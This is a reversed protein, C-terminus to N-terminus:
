TSLYIMRCIYSTSAKTQTTSHVCLCSFHFVNISYLSLSTTFQSETERRPTLCTEDALEEMCVSLTFNLWVAHKGLPSSCISKIVCLSVIEIEYCSIQVHILMGCELIWPHVRCLWVAFFLFSLFFCLNTSRLIIPFFVHVFEDKVRYHYFLTLCKLQCDAFTYFLAQRHPVSFHFSVCFQLVDSVSISSYTYPLRRLMRCSFVHM